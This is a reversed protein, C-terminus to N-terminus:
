SAHGQRETGTDFFRTLYNDPALDSNRILSFVETGDNILEEDGVFFAQALGLYEGDCSAAYDGAAAEAKVIAEDSSAARWVSVSEEYSQGVDQSWRFFCRVGYWGPKDV